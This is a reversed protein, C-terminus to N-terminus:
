DSDKQCIHKNNTNTYINELIKKVRCSLRQQLNKAIVIQKYKALLM